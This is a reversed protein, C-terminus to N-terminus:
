GQLIKQKATEFDDRTILNKEYLATLEIIKRETRNYSSELKVLHDQANLPSEPLMPKQSRGTISLSALGGLLRIEINRDKFEPFNLMDRIHTSDTKLKRYIMWAIGMVLLTIGGLIWPLYHYIGQFLIVSVGVGALLIVHLLLIIYATFISKFIGEKGNNRFNM